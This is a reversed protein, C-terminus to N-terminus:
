VVKELYTKLNSLTEVESQMAGTILPDMLKALGKTKYDLIFTVKTSTGLSEFHYTGTPRAPGANVQFQILEYPKCAIIEYDGDIRGTPGKLGQKFASGVGLPEHDSLFRIDTVSPRWLPNNAGDLVFDFVTKVPRAITITEEAHAM